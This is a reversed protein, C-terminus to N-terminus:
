GAWVSAGGDVYIIQGTVFDSADSSLFLATGVIDEPTALRKMPTRRAIGELVKPDISGTEGDPSSMHMGSGVMAPAVANVTINYGAWECALSKTIMNVAGKSASYAVANASTAFQGRISSINVIKGKKQKIMVKGVERDCLFVGLTNIQLLREFERLPYDVASHLLNTGSGAVLIDIRGFEGTTESVMRKVDDEKTIDATVSLSRKGYDSRIRDRLADLVNTRRGALAVHAGNSALERAIARGLNGTAGTVLAVKDDLGFLKKEVM